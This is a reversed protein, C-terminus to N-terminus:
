PRAAVALAAQRAQAAVIMTQYRALLNTEAIFPNALVQGAWKQYQNQQALLYADIIEKETLQPFFTRGRAVAETHTLQLLGDAYTQPTGFYTGTKSGPVLAEWQIGLSYDLSFALAKQPSVSRALGNASDAINQVLLMRLSADYERLARGITTGYAHANTTQIMHSVEHAFLAELGLFVDPIPNDVLREANISILYRGSSQDFIGQGVSPFDERFLVTARSERLASLNQRAMFYTLSDPEAKNLIRSFTADLADLALQDVPDGSKAMARVPANNSALFPMLRYIGDPSTGLRAIALREVASPTIATPANPPRAVPSPVFEPPHIPTISRRSFRNILADIEIQRPTLSDAGKTARIRSIDDLYAGLDAMQKESLALIDAATTISEAIEAGSAVRLTHAFGLGDLGLSLASLGTNVLFMALTKERQQARDYRADGIVLSLGFARALEKQSDNYGIEGVITQITADAISAGLAITSVAAGEIAALPFMAVSAIGLVVSTDFESVETQVEYVNAVNIASAIWTRARLDPQWRDNEGTGTLLEPALATAILDFGKALEVLEEIDCPDQGSVEERAHISAERMTKTAHQAASQLWELIEADSAGAQRFGDSITSEFRLLSGFEIPAGLAQKPGLDEIEIKFVPSIPDPIFSGSFAARWGLMTQTLLEPTQEVRLLEQEQQIAMEMWKERMLLYAAHHGLSVDQRLTEFAKLVLTNELPPLGLFAQQRWNEDTLSIGHCKAAQETAARFLSVEPTMRIELSAKADVGRPFSRVAFSEDIYADIFILDEPAADAFLQLEGDLPPGATIALPQSAFSLIENGAERALPVEVTRPTGGDPHPIALVAKIEPLPLHPPSVRAVLRVSEPQYSESIREFIQAEGLESDGTFTREFYFELQIDAFDLMWRVSTGNVAIIKEGPLVGQDMQMEILVADYGSQVIAELLDQANADPENYFRRLGAGFSSTHVLEERNVSEATELAFYNILPDTSSLEIDRPDDPLNQGIVLLRRLNEGGTYGYGPIELTRVGDPVIPYMSAWGDGDPAIGLQKNVPLITLITPQITELEPLPRVPMSGSGGAEDDSLAVEWILQGTQPATVLFSIKITEDIGIVPVPCSLRRSSVDSDSTFSCDSEETGIVAGIELGTLNGEPDLPHRGSFEITLQQQRVEEGWINTLFIEVKTLTGPDLGISSSHVMTMVDLKADFSYYPYWEFGQSCSLFGDGTLQIPLEHECEVLLDFLELNRSGPSFPEYYNGIYKGCTIITRGQSDTSAFGTANFSVLGTCIFHPSHIDVQSLVYVPAPSCKARRNSHDIEITSPCEFDFYYHPNPDNNNRCWFWTSTNPGTSNDVAEGTWFSPAYCAEDLDVWKETQSVALSPLLFFFVYLFNRM